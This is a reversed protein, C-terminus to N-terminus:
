RKRTRESKKETSETAETTFDEKRHFRVREEDEAEHGASGGVSDVYGENM